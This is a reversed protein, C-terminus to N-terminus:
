WSTRWLGKEGRDVVVLGIPMKKSELNLGLEECNSYIRHRRDGLESGTRSSVETALRCTTDGGSGQGISARLRRFTQWSKLTEQHVSMALYRTM